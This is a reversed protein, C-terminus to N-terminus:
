LIFRTRVTCVLVYLLVKNAAKRGNGTSSDQAAQKRALPLRVLGCCRWLFLMSMFLTWLYRHTSDVHNYVLIPQTQLITLESFTARYATSYVKGTGVLLLWQQQQGPSYWTEQDSYSSRPVTSPVHRDRSDISELRFDLNCWHEINLAKNTLRCLCTRKETGWRDKSPCIAFCPLHSTTAKKARKWTKGKPPAEREGPRNCGGRSGRPGRCTWPDPNAQRPFLPPRWAPPWPWPALPSPTREWPIWTSEARLWTSYM